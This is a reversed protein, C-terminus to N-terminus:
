KTPGRPDADGPTVLPSLARAPTPEREVVLAPTPRRCPDDAPLAGANAGPPLHRAVLYTVAAAIVADLVARRVEDASPALLDRWTRANAPILVADRRVGIAIGLHASTALPEGSGSRREGTSPRPAALRRKAEEVLARAADAPMAALEDLADKVLVGIEAAEGRGTAAVLGVGASRRSGGCGACPAGVPVSDLDLGCDPCFMSHMAMM